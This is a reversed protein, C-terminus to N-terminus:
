PAERNPGGDHRLLAAGAVRSVSCRGDSMTAHCHAKPGGTMEGKHYSDPPSPTQGRRSASGPAAYNRTLFGPRRGDIYHTPRTYRGYRQRSRDTHRYIHPLHRRMRAVAPGTLDEAPLM